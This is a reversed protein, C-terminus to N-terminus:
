PKCTIFSSKLAILRLAGDDLVTMEIFASPEWQRWTVDSRIKISYVVAPDVRTARADYAWFSRQWLEYQLFNCRTEIVRWAFEQVKRPVDTRIPFLIRADTVGSKFGALACLILALSIMRHM